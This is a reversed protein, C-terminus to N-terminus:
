GAWPSSGQRLIVLEADHDSPWMDICYSLFDGAGNDAQSDAPPDAPLYSVRVRFRGAQVMVRHEPGPEELCGVVSVAGSSVELDAEVIHDARDDPAPASEVVRLVTEVFDYRATGVSISFREIGIRHIQVAEDTWGAPPLDPDMAAGARMWADYADVDQVYFQYHSAYVVARRSGDHGAGDITVTV